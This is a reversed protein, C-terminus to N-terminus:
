NTVMNKGNSKTLMGKYYNCCICCISTYLIHLMHIIHLMYFLCVAIFYKTSVFINFDFNVPFKESLICKESYDPVTNLDHLDLGLSFSILGESKLM